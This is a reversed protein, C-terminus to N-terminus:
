EGQAGKPPAADVTEADATDDAPQSPEDGEPEQQGPQEYVAFEDGEPGISNLGMEERVENVSMTGNKIHLDFTTARTQNDGQMLESLDIETFKGSRPAFLKINAEAELRKKWGRLGYRVFEMGLVDLNRGYGQSGATVSLLHIPVGFYRAIEEVNFQRNEVMQFEGLKPQLLQYDMGPGLFYTKFANGVGAREAKWREKLAREEEPTKPSTPLKLVGGVQANNAFYNAAFRDMAYAIAIARSARNAPADGMLNRFMAPGRLHLIHEADMYVRYEKADPLNSPMRVWYLLEGPEAVRVVDGGVTIEELGLARRVQVRESEIFWLESVRGARDYVIEAYGNGGMAGFSTM